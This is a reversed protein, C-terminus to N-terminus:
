RARARLGKELLAIALDPRGPGGPYPEALFIPASGTRSTSAPDLTTTLDLLPYLLDFHRADAGAGAAARACRSSTSGGSAGATTSFRAFGTCIPPWRTTARLCRAPAAGRHLYLSGRRGGDARPYRTARAAGAAVVAAASCRRSSRWDRRRRRLPSRARTMQLGAALLDCAGGISCRDRHLRRGYGVTLALYGAAGAATCSRRRSTSRRRPEAARLVARARAAGGAPSDVVQDFNRLDASFHGAVFLGFTFAASLMPTSFTSFFLAIATVLMLEVFILM